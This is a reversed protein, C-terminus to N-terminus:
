TCLMMRNFYNISPLGPLELTGLVSASNGMQIAVSLQPPLYPFSQPEGTASKLSQGLNRLFCMTDPRVSRCTEVAILHFIYSQGERCHSFNWRSGEVICM